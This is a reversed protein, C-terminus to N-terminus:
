YVRSWNLLSQTKMSEILAHYWNFLVTEQLPSDVYKKTKKTKLKKEFFLKYRLLCFFCKGIKRNFSYYLTLFKM